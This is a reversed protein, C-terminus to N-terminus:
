FFPLFGGLTLVGAVCMSGARGSGAPCAAQGRHVGVAKGTFPARSWGM